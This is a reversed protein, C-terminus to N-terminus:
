LKKAVLGKPLQSPLKSFDAIQVRERGSIRISADGYPITIPYDVMSAVMAPAVVEEPVAGKEALAKMAELDVAGETGNDGALSVKIQNKKSM